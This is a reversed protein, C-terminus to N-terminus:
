KASPNEVSFMAPVVQRFHRGSQRYEVAVGTFQLPRQATTIRLHLYILDRMEQGGDLAYGRVPKSSRQAPSSAGNGRWALPPGGLFDDQSYVAADIWEIGASADVPTASELTLRGGHVNTLAPALYWLEDGRSVTTMGLNTGTADAGFAQGDRIRDWHTRDWVAWSIAGVMLVAVLAPLLKSKV